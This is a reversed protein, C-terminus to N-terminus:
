SASVSQDFGLRALVKGAYQEYGLRGEQAKVEQKTVPDIYVGWMQGDHVIDCFKWRLIVQLAANAHRPYLCSVIDLWAVLRALDRASLAERAKLIRGQGVVPEPPITWAGKGTPAAPPTAPTAKPPAARAGASALIAALAALAASTAILRKLRM